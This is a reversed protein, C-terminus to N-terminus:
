FRVVDILKSMIDNLSQDVKMYSEYARLVSIMDVMETMVNVNSAEYFGQKVSFVSPTIEPYAAPNENVFLSAGASSLGSKDKFDVIKLAGVMTNSIIDKVFVSGDAEIKVDKADIPIEIDGSQGMVTDGAMTVLKRDHNITFQGNRTYRIGEKTSVAFFGNGEIGIDFTNGTEVLPAETFYIHTDLGNITPTQGPSESTTNTEKTEVKFVPKSLKYGATLANALNNTIAEMRRQVVYKGNLTILSSNIM